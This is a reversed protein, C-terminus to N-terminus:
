KGKWSEQEPLPKGTPNSCSSALGRTLFAAWLLMVPAAVPVRGKVGQVEKARLGPELVSKWSSDKRGPDPCGRRCRRFSSICCPTTVKLRPSYLCLVLGGCPHCAGLPWKGQCWSKSQLFGRIFSIREPLPQELM